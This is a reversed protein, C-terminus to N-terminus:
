PSQSGSEYLRSLELLVPEILQLYKDEALESKQNRLQILDQELQDRRDRVATSLQEEQPSSVLHFRRAKSGDVSAGAKASKIARVGHFWDAPTGLQDANDDLLAHETVLRGAHAYFESVRFSALLFAELLSTQEDKDLDAQPDSIAASLFEGFRAFNYEHGSKTSTIVVRNRGSLENLFPGSSSACNIVALPREFPALWEKLETASVDSGRLNFKAAKGDFTGHGILVLWLPQSGTKVNETLRKKLQERDAETGSDDLGITIFDAHGRKAADSWRATWERFQRGFEMTGEAGVVVIVVPRSEDAPSAFAIAACALLVFTNM